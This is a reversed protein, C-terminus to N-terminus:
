TVFRSFVAGALHGIMIANDGADLIASLIREDPSSFDIVDAILVECTQFFVCAVGNTQSPFHVPVRYGNGLDLHRSALGLLGVLIGCCSPLNIGALQRGKASVLERRTTLAFCTPSGKNPHSRVKGDALFM